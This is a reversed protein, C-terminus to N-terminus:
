RVAVAMLNHDTLRKTEVRSFGAGKFAEALTDQVFGSHHAMYPNSTLYPAYGYYLDHGSIPGAPSNFLPERTPAVGELDPVFVLAIGGPRLVRLFEGLAVPVDHPFLHELAHSCYVADFPGVDGMDVMSAVIDPKCDPNIDMRVEDFGSLWAPLTDGGCGVHIVTPM